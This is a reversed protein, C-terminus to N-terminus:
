VSPPPTDEKPSDWEDGDSEQQEYKQMQKLRRKEKKSLKKAPKAKLYVFHLLSM